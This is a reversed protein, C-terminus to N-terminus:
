LLKLISINQQIQKLYLILLWRLIVINKTAKQTLSKDYEESTKTINKDRIKDKIVDTAGLLYNGDYELFKFINITHSLSDGDKLHPNYIDSTFAEYFKEVKKYKNNLVEKREVLLQKEEDNKQIKLDDIKIGELSGKFNM